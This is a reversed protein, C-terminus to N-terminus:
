CRWWNGKREMAWRERRRLAGMVGNVDERCAAGGLGAVVLELADLDAPFFALREIRGEDTANLDSRRAEASGISARSLCVLLHSLVLLRRM